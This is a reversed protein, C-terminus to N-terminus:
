AVAEFIQGKESGPLFKEAGERANLLMRALKPIQLHLLLHRDTLAPNLIMLEEVLEARPRASFIAIQLLETTTIAITNPSAEATAPPIVPALDLGNLCRIGNVYWLREPHFRDGSRRWSTGARWDMYAAISRLWQGGTRQDREDDDM